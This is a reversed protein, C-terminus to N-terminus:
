RTTNFARLPLKLDQKDRTCTVRKWDMTWLGLLGATRNAHRTHIRPLPYGERWACASLIVSTTKIQLM